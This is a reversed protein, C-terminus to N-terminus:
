KVEPLTTLCTKVELNSWYFTEDRDCYFWYVVSFPVLSPLDYAPLCFTVRFWQWRHRCDELFDVASTKSSWILHVPHVGIPGNWRKVHKAKFFESTM